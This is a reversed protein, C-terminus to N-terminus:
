LRTVFGKPSQHADVTPYRWWIIAAAGIMMMLLWKPWQDTQQSDFRTLELATPPQYIAPGGPDAIQGNAQLDDDGRLGDVFHLTITNGNVIAGTGTQADFTFNYWHDSPNDPTPGYKWYSNPSIENNHLTLTVSFAAGTEVGTVAFDFLGLPFDVGDLAQEETPMSSSMNALQKGEQTAFTVYDGTSSKLSTVHLQQSDPVGDGNGDGSENVGDEIEAGIGDSDSDDDNDMITGTAQQTMLTANQANSLRLTFAEDAETLLDNKIPVSITGTLAYAPILLSGTTATYDDTTAVDPVTEYEVTVDTASGRSLTAIFSLTSDTEQATADAISLTPSIVQIMHSARSATLTETSTIQATNTILQNGWVSQDVTAVYSIEISHSPSITVGSALYPPQTGVTGSTVGSVSISNNVFSLGAPLTDSILGSTATSVGTNSIQITYTVREGASVTSKSAEKSISLTPRPLVTVKFTDEVTAHTSMEKAQITIDTEGVSGFQIAYQDVSGLELGEWLNPVVASNSNGTVYFKIWDNEPDSFCDFLNM